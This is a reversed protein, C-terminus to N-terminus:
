EGDGDPWTPRSYCEHTRHDLRGNKRVQFETHELWDRDSAFQPKYPLGDPRPINAWTPKHEKTYRHVYASLVFRQDDPHLESGLKTM